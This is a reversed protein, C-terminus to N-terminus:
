TESTRRFFSDVPLDEHGSSEDEFSIKMGTSKGNYVRDEPKVCKYLVPPIEKFYEEIATVIDHHEFLKADDKATRGYRDKALDEESHYAKLLARVAEIRGSAAAVYLATREDYNPRTVDISQSM